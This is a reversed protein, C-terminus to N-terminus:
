RLCMRGSARVRVRGTGEAFGAAGRGGAQGDIRPGHSRVLVLPSRTSVREEEKEGDGERWKRRREKKKRAFRPTGRGVYVRVSKVREGFRVILKM